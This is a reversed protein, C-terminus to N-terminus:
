RLKDGSEAPRYNTEIRARALDDPTGIDVFAQQSLQLGRIDLGQRLAAQFVHGIHCDEAKDGHTLLEQLHSHMFETFEPTWAAIAWNLQLDTTGPKILLQTVRQHQDIAVMDSKDPRDAPFLGLAVQCGTETLLAQVKNFAQPASFLIDPFGLLVTADKILPYAQDVSFPPGYLYRTVLYSLHVGYDSGDAFYAPIDWKGNRLIIIAETVGNHKLHELLYQTVPKGGVQLLEKSGPLKGLRTAQGAAPIVAISRTRTM